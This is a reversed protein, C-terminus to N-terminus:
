DRPQKYNSWWFGRSMNEATQVNASINKSRMAKVYHTIVDVVGLVIVHGQLSDM